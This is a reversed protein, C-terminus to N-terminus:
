ASREVHRQRVRRRPLGSIRPLQLVPQVLIPMQPGGPPTAREIIVGCAHLREVTERTARDVLMCVDGQFTTRRLSDLFKEVQDFAMNSFLGMILNRGRSM